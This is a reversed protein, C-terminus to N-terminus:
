GDIKLDSIWKDAPLIKDKRSIESIIFIFNTFLIQRSIPQEESVPKRSPIAEMRQTTWHLLSSYLCLTASAFGLLFLSAPLPDPFHLTELPSRDCALRRLQYDKQLRGRLQKSYLSLIYKTSSLKLVSTLAMVMIMEDMVYM